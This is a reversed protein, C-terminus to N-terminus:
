IQVRHADLVLAFALVDVREAGARLLAQACANATAGTTIVDDVLVLKAGAVAALADAPVAFAGRVNRRREDGRLGVQARTPRIRALARCCVATGTRAGIADALLASQNFRRRWLRGRYLPVPVLADADALLAAGSRAMLGGMTAAVELRDRYKLAHVLARAPGAFSAVARARHYVPPAAIAAASEAGPGPDCAFPIGTRPCLPPSIFTTESWCDACVGATDALPAACLACHPPLLFDVGARVLGRTAAAAARGCRALDLRDRHAVVSM